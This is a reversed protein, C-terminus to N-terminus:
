WHHRRAWPQKSDGRPPLFSERWNALRCRRRRICYLFQDAFKGADGERSTLLSVVPEYKQQWFFAEAQRLVAETIKESKPHDKIFAAFEKEARSWLRMDFSRTALDFDKKEGGFLAADVRAHTLALLLILLITRSLNTM